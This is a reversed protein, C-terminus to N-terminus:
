PWCSTLPRMRSIARSRSARKKAPVIPSPRTRPPTSSAGTRRPWCRTRWPIAAPRRCRHSSRSRRISTRRSTTGISCRARRRSRCTRAIGAAAARGRRGPRARRRAAVWAWRSRSTRRALTARSTRSGPSTGRLDRLDRALDQTSAYRHAPDKALCREVVTLLGDADGARASAIPEPEAEIIAAMTQAASDRKFARRGTIMEYVIAGLAFQDTRFDISRGAVQEPSM